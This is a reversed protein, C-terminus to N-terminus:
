MSEAMTWFTVPCGHEIVQPRPEELRQADRLRSQSVLGCPM